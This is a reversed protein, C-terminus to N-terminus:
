ASRLAAILCESRAMVWRDAVVVDGATFDARIETRIRGRRTEPCEHAIAEVLGRKGLFAAEVAPLGVQARYASGIREPARIDLLAVDLRELPLAAIRTRNCALLSGGFGVGLMLLGGGGVLFSRKTLKRM